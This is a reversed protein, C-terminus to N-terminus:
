AVLYLGSSKTPDLKNTEIPRIDPAPDSARRYSRIAAMDHAGQRMSENFQRFQGLFDRAQERAFDRGQDLHQSAQEALDVKSTALQLKQDALGIRLDDMSAELLRKADATDTLMQIGVQGDQVKINLHIKGLGEPNLQVQMEGGGKKLLTHTGSILKEVNENSLQTDAMPAGAAAGLKDVPFASEGTPKTNQMQAYQEAFDGSMQQDGLQQQPNPNLKVDIVEIELNPDVEALKNLAIGEEVSLPNVNADMQFVQAINVQPKSVQGMSQLNQPELARRAIKQEILQDLTSRPEATAKPGVSSPVMAVAPATAVAPPLKGAFLEPQVQEMETLMETYLIQAKTFQKPQLGLKEFLPTMAQHPSKMMTDQPLESLAKMIERPSIGFNAQMEKMFKLVPQTQESVKVDLSVEKNDVAATQNVYTPQAGQLIQMQPLNYIDNGQITAQAEKVKDKTQEKDLKEVQNKFDSSKDSKELSKKESASYSNSSSTNKSVNSPTSNAASSSKLNDRMEKMDLPNLQGLGLGNIM